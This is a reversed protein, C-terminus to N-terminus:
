ERLHQQMCTELESVTVYVWKEDTERHVIVIGYRSPSCTPLVASQYCDRGLYDLLRNAYHNARAHRWGHDPNNTDITGGIERDPLLAGSSTLSFMLPQGEEKYYYYYEDSSAPSLPSEEELTSAPAVLQQEDEQVHDRSAEDLPPTQEHQSEQTAEDQSVGLEQMMEDYRQCWAMVNTELISFFYPMQAVSGDKNRGYIRNQRMAENTLDRAENILDLFYENREDMGRQSFEVFLWALSTESSARAQDCFYVSLPKLIVDLLYQPLPQPPREGKEHKKRKSKPKEVEEVPPAARTEELPSPTNTNSVVTRQDDGNTGTTNTTYENRITAAAVGKGGLRDAFGSRSSGDQNLEGQATRIVRNPSLTKDFTNSFEKTETSEISGQADEAAIAVIAAHSMPPEAQGPKRGPTHCELIRRYNDFRRLKETLAEDSLILKRYQREPPIYEDPSNEWIYYEHALAYLKSFDKVMVAQKEFKGTASQKVLRYDPYIDMLGLTRLSKFDMEVKRVGPRIQQALRYPGVYCDSGPPVFEDAFHWTRWNAHTLIEQLIRDLLRKGPYGMFEDYVYKNFLTAPPQEQDDQRPDAVHLEDASTLSAPSIDQLNNTSAPISIM